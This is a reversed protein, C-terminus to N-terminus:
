INYLKWFYFIYYNLFSLHHHNGFFKKLVFLYNVSDLVSSRVDMWGICLEWLTCGM